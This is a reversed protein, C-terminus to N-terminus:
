NESAKINKKSMESQRHKFSNRQNEEPLHIRVDAREEFTSSGSLCRKFDDHFSLFSIRRAECMHHQSAPHNRRFLCVQADIRLLFPTQCACSHSLRWNSMGASIIRPSVWIKRVVETDTFIHGCTKVLRKEISPCREGMKTSGSNLPEDKSVLPIECCKALDDEIQHCSYGYPCKLDSCTKGFTVTFYDGTFKGGADQGNPCKEDYIRKFKEPLHKSFSSYTSCVKIRRM